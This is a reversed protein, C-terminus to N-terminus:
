IAKPCVIRGSRFLQYCVMEWENEMKVTMNGRETTNMRRKAPGLGYKDKFFECSEKRTDVIVTNFKPSRNSWCVNDERLKKCRICKMNCDEM